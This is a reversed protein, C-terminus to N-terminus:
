GPGPGPPAIARHEIMKEGVMERVADQRQDRDMDCLKWMVPDQPRTLYNLSQIAANIRGFDEPGPERGNQEQDQILIIEEEMQDVMEKIIEHNMFPMEDQHSETTGRFTEAIYQADRIRGVTGSAGQLSYQDPEARIFGENARMDNAMDMNARELNEMITSFQETDGNEVSQMIGAHIIQRFTENINEVQALNPNEQAAMEGALETTHHLQGDLLRHIREGVAFEDMSELRNFEAGHDERGTERYEADRSEGHRTNDQLNDQLDERSGASFQLEMSPTINGEYYSVANEVADKMADVGIESRASGAYLIDSFRDRCEDLQGTSIDCGNRAANEVMQSAGELDKRLQEGAAGGGALAGAERERVADLFVHSVNYDMAAEAIEVRHYLPKFISQAIDDAAEQREALGSWRTNEFAAAHVDVIEDRERKSFEALNRSKDFELAIDDNVEWLEKRFKVMHQNAADYSSDRGDRPHNLEFERREEEHHLAAEDRHRMSHETARTSVM